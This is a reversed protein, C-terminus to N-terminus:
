FPENKSFDQFSNIVNPVSTIKDHRLQKQVEEKLGRTWLPHNEGIAYTISRGMWGAPGLMDLNDIADDLLMAKGVYLGGSLGPHKINVIHIHFHYYSPQYHIFIRLEDARVSYNYCAPIVSRLNRNLKVLWNKHTPKLDRLSKIDDRYVIAVLFLSELNSGDWRTDPLVIFSDDKNQENYDKYIVRSSESNQYLIDYVWSLTEVTSVEEIYPKIIREYIEPTETVMHLNQQDFKKIHVSTAPWILNIKATANKEIHQKMVALGWHFIDNCTLEKLEVIGSIISYESECSYYLPLPRDVTLFSHTESTRIRNFHGESLEEETHKLSVEGVSQKRVTEEQMFHTKEATMIAYQSDIEGLLSIIKTEPNSDLIRIFRFRNILNYLSERKKDVGTVEM